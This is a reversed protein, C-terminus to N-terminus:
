FRHSLTATVANETYNTTGDIVIHRAGVSANTKPGLQTLVGLHYLTEDTKLRNTGTGRSDIMSYSGILSSLPTLKHSWTLSGGSQDVNQFNAFSGLIAGTGVTSAATQTENQFASFTVTNRAGTLAFSANRLHQLTVGSTMFGGQLQTNPNIGSTLLLNNVFAARAAPDPIASQFLNFFLDYNSGLASTSAQTPNVVVDRTETYTWITGATRHSFKISDSNGFFRDERSLSLRTRETPTWDFGAGKTTYSEKDLSVYNNAERGGFVSVRFQPNIQYHLVGRLREAETNRGRTFEVDQSNGEISWSLNTVRTQGNVSGVWERSDWDLNDFSKTRNTIQIYRLNYDAFSGFQGRFYPSLRFTSTETTNRNTNVNVNSATTPGFANTNQQSINGSGELFFRNELLEITGFSNLYNQTQNRSSEQAYMLNHMQYELHLQVRSGRGDIQIGPTLDTILDSQKHRQTLNVNDTATESVAMTPTITWEGAMAPMALCALGFHALRALRAFAPSRRRAPETVKATGRSTVMATVM